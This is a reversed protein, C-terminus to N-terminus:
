FEVGLDNFFAKLPALIPHELGHHLHKQLIPIFPRYKEVGDHHVLRIFLGLVRCHFQTGLIRYWNEFTEREQANMGACYREIMAHRIDMPVDIRADELLNVLDYACPGIMAEQYDIIGCRNLGQAREILMLNEGHYDIHMFSRKCPELASEIDNWISLYQEELGIENPVGRMHPIAHTIIHKHSNHVRGEYYEPLDPIDTMDRIKILGDTALGYLEEQSARREEAARKFSMDGFDELLMYGGDYDVDYIEPTRLGQGRLYNGLEVFDSMKHGPWDDGVKDPVAEMLIQIDEGRQVRFYRRSSVDQGAPKGLICNHQDLFAQRREENFEYSM